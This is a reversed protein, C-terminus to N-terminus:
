LNNFANMTQTQLPKLLKTDAGKEPEIGQPVRNHHSSHLIVFGEKTSDVHNACSPRFVDDGSSDSLAEGNWGHRSDNESM